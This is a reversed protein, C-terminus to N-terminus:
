VIANTLTFRINLPNQIHSSKYNCLFRLHSFVLAKNAAYKRGFVLAFNGAWGDTTKVKTSGSQLREERRSMMLMFNRRCEDPAWIWGGRNLWHEYTLLVARIVSRNKECLLLLAQSTCCSPGARCSDSRSNPSWVSVIVFLLFWRLINKWTRARYTVHCRYEWHTGSFAELEPLVECFMGAEALGSLVLKWMVGVCLMLGFWRFPASCLLPGWLRAFRSYNQWSIYGLWHTGHGQLISCCFTSQYFRFLYNLPTLSSDNLRLGAVM